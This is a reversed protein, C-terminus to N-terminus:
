QIVVKKTAVNIGYSNLRVFYIGEGDFEVETHKNGVLSIEQLLRGSIDFIQASTVLVNTTNDLDIQVTGTSPNPYIKLDVENEFNSVATPIGIGASFVNDRFNQLVTLDKTNDGHNIGGASVDIDKVAQTYDADLNVVVDNGNNVGAVMVTQEFYNADFLGHFQFNKDLNAGGNGEIAAFRFGSAWGWHMAPSKPALPHTGTWQAPDSTNNPADVGIHFKIGEVNTVNFNGLNEAINRNGRVYIYKNPVVTQMAGDHIITIKSIYYDVRTFELNNSLNNTTAQNFAFPSSGLMHKITLTVDKQASASMSFLLAALILIRNKM